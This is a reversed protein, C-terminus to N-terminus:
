PARGNTIIKRRYLYLLILDQVFFKVLPVFGVMNDNSVIHHYDIIIITL